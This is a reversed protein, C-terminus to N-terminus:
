AAAISSDALVLVRDPRAGLDALANLIDPTPCRTKIAKTWTPRSMGTAAALDSVTNIRNRRKVIDLEDLSILFLM